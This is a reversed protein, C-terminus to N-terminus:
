RGIRKNLQKREISMKLKKPVKLGKRAKILKARIVKKSGRSKVAAKPVNVVETAKTKKPKPDKKVEKVEKAKKMAKAVKTAKIAKNLENLDAPPRMHQLTNIVLDKLKGTTVINFEFPYGNLVSPNSGLMKVIGQLEAPHGPVQELRVNFVSFNLNDLVQFAMNAEKNSLSGGGASGDEPKYQILGSNSMSHLEAQLIDLGEDVTYSMSASGALKGRGSLSKLDTLKLIDALEINEFDTEFHFAPNSGKVIRLFKHAKLSGQLTQATFQKIQFFGNSDFLCKFLVNKLDIGAVSLKSASVKQDGKTTLPQLKTFLIRANAGEVSLGERAVSGGKVELMLVSTKLQGKDWIM